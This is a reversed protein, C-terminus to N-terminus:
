IALDIEPNGTMGSLFLIYILTGFITGLVLGVSVVGGKPWIFVGVAAGLGILAAMIMTLWVMWQPTQSPLVVAHLVVLVAHVRLQHLHM